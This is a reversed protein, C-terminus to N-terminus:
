KMEENLRKLQEKANENDPNIQLSKKCSELAMELNGNALYGESLGDYADFSDPHLEVNMKFIELAQKFMNGQLLRYGLMLFKDEDLDYKDKANKIIEHFKNEASDPGNTIISMILSDTLSLKPVNVAMLQTDFILTANPPIAGAGTEGYALQPPIILRFKDGVQMLAIGEDWGKIVEGEGLIFKIPRGRKYSSDFVKGDPLYGTYNVSVEKGIEAKVGNGKELIIYKLGSSTTVTDQKEVTQAKLIGISLLVAIILFKNV